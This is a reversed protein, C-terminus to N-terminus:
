IIEVRDSVTNEVRLFLNILKSFSLKKEGRSGGWIIEQKKCKSKKRLLVYNFFVNSFFSFQLSIVFARSLYQGSSTDTSMFVLPITHEDM